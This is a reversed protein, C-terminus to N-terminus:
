DSLLKSAELLPFVVDSVKAQLDCVGLVGVLLGLQGDAFDKGARRCVLDLLLNDLLVAKAKPVLHLLPPFLKFCFSHCHYGCHSTADTLLLEISILGFSMSLEAIALNVVKLHLDQLVLCEEIKLGFDCLLHKRDLFIGERKLLYWILLM